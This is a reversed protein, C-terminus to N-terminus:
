KSRADPFGCCKYFKKELEKEVAYICFGCCIIRLLYMKKVLPIFYILCKFYYTIREGYISKYQLIVCLLFLTSIYSCTILWNNWDNIMRKRINFLFLVLASIHLNTM